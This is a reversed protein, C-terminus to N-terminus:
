FIGMFCNSLENIIEVDINRLAESYEKFLEAYSKGSLGSITRNRNGNYQNKETDKSGYTTTDNTNAITNTSGNSKDKTARSAYTNNAIDSEINLMQGPTDSGVNLTYNNANTTSNSISSTSDAGSKNLTRDNTHGDSIVETINGGTYFKWEENLAEYLKNKVPMIEAMTMSLFHNFREPPLCGIEMFKYHNIIKENLSDRWVAKEYDTTLFSPLPYDDLCLPFGSDLLRGLEITYVAM